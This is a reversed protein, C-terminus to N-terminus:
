RGPHVMPSVILVRMDHGDTGQDAEASSKPQGCTAVQASAAMSRPVQFHPGTLTTLRRSAGTRVDGDGM